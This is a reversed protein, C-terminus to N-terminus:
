AITPLTLHTYSVAVSSGMEFHASSSLGRSFSSNFPRDARELASNIPMRRPLPDADQEATSRPLCISLETSLLRLRSALSVILSRLFNLPMPSALAMVM